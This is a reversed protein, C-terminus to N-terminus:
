RRGFFEYSIISQLPKLNKPEPVEGPYGLPLISIPEMNEPLGLLEGISRSVAPEDTKYASMYVSGLGRDHAALMINAAALIGNEMERDYSQRKDACVVVVVSANQLFDAKFEQKEIPCYKNKLAVLRGKTEADRIVIFHWPQGNMSSPARRALDLLEELVPNEVPRVTYIHISRRGIIAEDLQM